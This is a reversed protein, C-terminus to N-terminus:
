LEKLARRMNWSLSDCKNLLWDVYDDPLDSLKTGKHKGFGITTPRQMMCSELIHWSTKQLMRNILEQTTICDGLASHALSKGLGLHERLFDLSHKPADVFVRAAKLTCGVELSSPYVGDLYQMDYSAFNHGVVLAFENKTLKLAAPLVDQLSPADKVMEDTIGHVKMAGMPIPIGPNILSEFREVEVLRNDKLDCLIHAYEVIRADPGLGSTETDAVFIKV